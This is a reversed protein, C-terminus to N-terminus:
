CHELMPWGNKPMPLTWPSKEKVTAGMGKKKLSFHM